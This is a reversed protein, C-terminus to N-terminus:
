EESREAVSGESSSESTKESLLPPDQDDELTQDTKEKWGILMHDRGCIPCEGLIMEKPDGKRSYTDYYEFDDRTAWFSSSEGSYQYGTPPEILRHLRFRGVLIGKDWIFHREVQYLEQVLERFTNDVRNLNQTMAIIDVGQHRHQQAFAQFEPPFERWRRSNMIVQAEDIILLGEQFETLLMYNEYYVWFSDDNVHINSVTLTGNLIATRMVKSAYLTKGEGPYGTIGTIM